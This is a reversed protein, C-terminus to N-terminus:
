TYVLYNTKWWIIKMQYWVALLQSCLSLTSSLVPPSSHSSNILLLCRADMVRAFIMLIALVNQDKYCLFYTLWKRRLFSSGSIVSLFLFYNPLYVPFRKTLKIFKTNSWYKKETGKNEEKKKAILNHFSWMKICSTLAM